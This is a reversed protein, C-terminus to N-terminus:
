MRFLVLSWVDKATLIDSVDIKSNGIFFRLDSTSLFYNETM